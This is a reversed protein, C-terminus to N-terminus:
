ALVVNEIRTSTSCSTPHQSWKKSYRDRVETAEFSIFGNKIATVVGKAELYFSDNAMKTAHITQGITITM